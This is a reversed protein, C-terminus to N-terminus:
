VSIGDITQNTDREVLKDRKPILIQITTGKGFVSDIKIIGDLKDIADKVIYLGLGSGTNQSTARYFMEFVKHLHEEQIGIGNDEFTLIINGKKYEGIIKVYSQEKGSDLYRLANSLLNNLVVKLRRTDTHVILDDSVQIDIQVKNFEPM